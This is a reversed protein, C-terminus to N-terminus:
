GKVINLNLVERQWRSRLHGYILPRYISIGDNRNQLPMMYRYPYIWITGTLGYKSLSIFNIRPLKFIPHLPIHELEELPGKANWHCVKKM